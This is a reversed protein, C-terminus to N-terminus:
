GGALRVALYDLQHALYSLKGDAIQRRRLTLWNELIKPEDKWLPSVSDELFQLICELFYCEEGRYNGKVPLLCWDSSGACLIEYGTEPLWDMLKRGTLSGGTHLENIQRNDMSQNFLRVIEDDLQRDVVPHFLTLGDYNLPLYLVGVPDLVTEILRLTDPVPVIDLYSSALVVDFKKEKECSKIFEETSSCITQLQCISEGNSVRFRQNGCDEFIFGKEKSQYDVNKPVFRINDISEDILTYDFEFQLRDQTFYTFMSGIGGGLDLIQSPYNIKEM